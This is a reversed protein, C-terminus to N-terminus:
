RHSFRTRRAAIPGGPGRKHTRRRLINGLGLVDGSGLGAGLGPVARKSRESMTLNGRSSESIHDPGCTHGREHTVTGELDYRGRCSRAGPLHDLQSAGQQDNHRVMQPPQLPQRPGRRHVDRRSRRARLGRRAPDATEVNKAKRTPGLRALLSAQRGSFTSLVATQRALAM